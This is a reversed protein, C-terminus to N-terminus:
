PNNPTTEETAVEPSVESDDALYQTAEFDQEAGISAQEPISKEIAQLQMPTCVLKGYRSHIEMIM